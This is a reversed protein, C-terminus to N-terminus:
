FSKFPIRVTEWQGNGNNIPLHNRIDEKDVEILEPSDNGLMWLHFIYYISQDAVNWENRTLTLFAEKKKQTTGKVEIKLPTADGGSIRSLVDYGSFNSELSQWKPPIGTRKAEREVSLREATRGIELLEASRRANSTQSLDDWWRILEDNWEGFLGAEKFCQSVEDSLFGKVEARGHRMRKSWTPQYSAILDRIQRRLILQYDGSDLLKQGQDTIHIYGQSNLLIWSCEQSVKLVENASAVIYRDFSDRFSDISLPAQSLLKLFEVSSYLIGVSFSM